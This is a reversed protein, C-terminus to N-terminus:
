KFFKLYVKVLLDWYKKESKYLDHSRPPRSLYSNLDEESWNM